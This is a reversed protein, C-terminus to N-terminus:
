QKRMPSIHIQNTEMGTKRKVIDEIQAIEADTLAEKNVVVDVSDDDIRVYVESFGKAEIMAEAATEKEIRQQIALMSDAADAKQEQDINVNNILETLLTKEKARAQERNLKAQVFYSSDRSTYTFVAEGPDEEDNTGSVSEGITDDTTVFEDTIAPDDDEQYILASGIDYLDDSGEPQSGTAIEGNDTLELGTSAIKQNDKFNLYGAVAIMIILATIIIQNRKFVFM